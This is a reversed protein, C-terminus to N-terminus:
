IHEELYIGKYGEKSKGTTKIFVIQVIRANKKIDFGYPNHVVLLSESRGRYGSDWIATEMTVGNRLLSSRPKAIAIMNLPVNIIENFLVKYVSPKLHLVDQDFRLSETEALKREEDTLNIRGFGIFREVSNVTLDIGNPGVQLNPKVMNEIIPPTKKLYSDLDKGCLVSM